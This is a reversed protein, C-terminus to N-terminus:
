GEALWQYLEKRETFVFVSHLESKISLVAKKVSKYNTSGNFVCNCANIGTNYTIPIFNYNGIHVIYAKGKSKLQIGVNMGNTLDEISLEKEKLQVQQKSM